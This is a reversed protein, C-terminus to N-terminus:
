RTIGDTTTIVGISLEGLTPEVGPTSPADPAHATIDAAILNNQQPNTAQVRFVRGVDITGYLNGSASLALVTANRLGADPISIGGSEVGNSDITGLTVIGSALPDRAATIAPFETIASNAILVRLRGGTGVTGQITLSRLSASPATTSNSSQDYVRLLVDTVVTGVNITIDGNADAPVPQQQEFKAVVQGLSSTCMLTCILM